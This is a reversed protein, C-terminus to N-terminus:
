KESASIAAIFPDAANVRYLPPLKARAAVLRSVLDSYVTPEEPGTDSDLWALRSDEVCFPLNSLNIKAM